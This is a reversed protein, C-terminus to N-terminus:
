LKRNSEVAAGTELWAVMPKKLVPEGTPTLTRAGKWDSTVGVGVAVAVAVAVGVAVTRGEGVGRGAGIGRSRGVGCGLGQTGLAARELLVLM